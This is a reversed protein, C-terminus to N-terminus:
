AVLKMAANEVAHGSVHHSRIFSDGDLVDIGQDHLAPERYEWHDPLFFQNPDYGSAVEEPTAPRSSCAGVCFICRYPLDHGPLNDGDSRIIHDACSGPQEYLMVYAAQRDNVSPRDHTDDIPVIDKGSDTSDPEDM